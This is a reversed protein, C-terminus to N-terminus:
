QTAEAKIIPDPVPEVKEGESIYEQGLTVVRTGPEPGDIWFGDKEQSLIIVPAFQVRDEDDIAKLGVEGTDALTLWAPSVLFAPKPPLKIMASATLGDRILTDSQELDIEVLFTRTQPDASPSIYKLNGKATQGGIISVEASMGIQIDTVSRESIQGVFQMSSRDVVTVCTNGIELVDGIEAIPDQVTGTVNTRIETRELELEAQAVAAKAADMAYKMQRLQSKSTYGKEALKSNAEHEGEAQALQAQTELLSAQRAGPNLVCVLDGANVHDGKNVLRKALNGDTEARIPVIANAKTRGRVPVTQFRERKELTVYSVRFLKTEEADARENVSPAEANNGSQGGINIDGALMWGGIALTVLGAAIHSGKLKFAM